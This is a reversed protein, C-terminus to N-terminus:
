TMGGSATQTEARHAAGHLAAIAAEDEATLVSKRLLHLSRVFRQETLTVGVCHVYHARARDNLPHVTFTWDSPDYRAVFCPLPGCCYGDSLAVLARYTAHNPDIPRANIHKYEVLACPKGHNYEMMVFDLDVAPCNFGWFGHRKSLEADRWGTRETRWENM